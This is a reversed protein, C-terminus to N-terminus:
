LCYRRLSDRLARSDATGEKLRWDAEKDVNFLIVASVKDMSSVERFAKKIWRARNGGISASGFESIIVPKPINEVIENYRAYFIDKFEMWKGWPLQTGWNYGDIAVYDTYEDGPYYQLFHNDCPVDEWNVAFIWRANAVGNKDFLDKVYRWMRIYDESGIKKGSWPYWDGNQEHAFRIFVEGKIDKIKSAFDSIYRDYSGKLLAKYDIGKKGIADWPEWTVVLVSKTGYVDKIVDQDVFKGWDIFVMVMDPTKSYIKSFRNLELRTPQDSLFVGFLFNRKNNYKPSFILLDAVVVLCAM